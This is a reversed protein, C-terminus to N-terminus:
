LHKTSRRMRMLHKDLEEQQETRGRGSGRSDFASTPRVTFSYGMRVPRSMGFDQSDAEDTERRKGLMEDEATRMSVPLGYTRECHELNAYEVEIECLIRSWKDKILQILKKNEGFEKPSAQLVGLSRGLQSTRIQDVTVPLTHIVKLISQRVSSLPLSGDPLKAIFKNLVDLGECAVFHGAFSMNKLKTIVKEVVRLKATGPRGAKNSEVDSEAAYNM